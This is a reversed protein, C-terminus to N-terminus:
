QSSAISEISTVKYSLENRKLLEDIAVKIFVEEPHGLKRAYEAAKGVSVPINGNVIGNYQQRSMELKKAMETASIELDCLRISELMDAVTLPEKFVEDAGVYDKRKITM